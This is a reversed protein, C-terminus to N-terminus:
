GKPNGILAERIIRLPSFPIRAVPWNMGDKRCITSPGVNDFRHMLERIREQRAREDPMASIGDIEAVLDRERAIRRIIRMAEKRGLLGHELKVRNLELAAEYTVDVLEDRSM